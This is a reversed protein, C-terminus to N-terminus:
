LDTQPAWEVSELVRWSSSVLGWAIIVSSADKHSGVELGNVAGGVGANSWDGKLFFTFGEGGVGKGGLATVDLGGELLGFSTGDLGGVATVEWDLPTGEEWEARQRAKCVVCPRERLPTYKVGGAPDIILAVSKPGSRMKRNLWNSRMSRLDL